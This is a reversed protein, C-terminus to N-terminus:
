KALEFNDLPVNERDVDLEFAKLMRTASLRRERLVNGVAENVTQKLQANACLLLSGDADNAYTIGTYYVL